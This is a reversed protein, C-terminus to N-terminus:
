TTPYGSHGINGVIVTSVSMVHASQNVVGRARAVCRVPVGGVKIVPPITTSPEAGGAFCSRSIMPPRIADVPDSAARRAGASARRMLAAPLHIIGPRM